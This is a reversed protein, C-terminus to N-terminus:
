LIDCLSPVPLSGDIKWVCNSYNDALYSNETIIRTGNARTQPIVTAAKTQTLNRTVTIVGGSVDNVTLTGTVCASGEM